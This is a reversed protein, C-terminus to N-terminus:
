FAHSVSATLYDRDTGNGVNEDGMYDTYSLGVSTGGTAFNVGLSLSMRDEVFGGLSTPGFGHPDHAFAFNPSMTWKSNNFNNYNATGVIRYSFSREDAGPQDECYGGNGFLGDYISAGLNAVSGTGATPSLSSGVAGKCKESSDGSASYGGRSVFGNNNNLDNIQVMAIETLLAASDAGLGVTVPDSATFSTTTGIDVSLVDYEIFATSNYNGAKVTAESIAPLSSRKFDRVANEYANADGLAVDTGTQTAWLIAQLQDGTDDDADTALARNSNTGLGNIGTYALWNLMQTAGSADAIQNIQSSAPTALPFDNRLSVEGQVTTSGVNTSFSAGIIQNDEPYIFQYEMSNLPTIAGLITAATLEMAFNTDHITGNGGSLADSGAATAQCVASNHVLAQEGSISTGFTRDMYLAKQQDTITYKTLSLEGGSASNLAGAGAAGGFVASCVTGGYATDKIATYLTDGGTAELSGAMANLAGGDYFGFHDTVTARYLAYYDGAFMNQMGTFRIYPAKSHYNAFYFNLDVGTGVDDLYTGFRVGFEGGDDAYVHKQAAPLPEIGARSLDGKVTKAAEVAMSAAFGAAGATYMIETGAGTLTSAATNSGADIGLAASGAILVKNDSLDSGLGNNGSDSGMTTIGFQTNALTLGTANSALEGFATALTNLVTNARTRSNAVSTADCTVGTQQSFACASGGQVEFDYAGGVILNSSGEGVIDSGFYTGSPDVQVQEAGFQYYAEFSVGDVQTSLTVQETPMLAERISAGPGRLKSLDLANTVLGNAGVPIFTAEGWNTAFRGVQYDVFNGDPSEASGTIYADYLTIDQEFDDEAQTTLAKFSPSNIDLAPNYSASYSVDIGLGGTTTGTISGFIKQKADFIKGQGFNLSGDDGNPQSGHFQNYKTALNGYADTWKPTSDTMACGEGNGRTTTKLGSSISSETYTYGTYLQCDYDAARMSIGSTVTHNATGTFGPFNLEAAFANGFFTLAYILASSFTIKIINPRM